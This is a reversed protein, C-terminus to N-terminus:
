LDLAQTLREIHHQRDMDAVAILREYATAAEQRRNVMEPTNTSEGLFRAHLSELRAPFDSPDLEGTSASALLEGLERRMQEKNPTSV